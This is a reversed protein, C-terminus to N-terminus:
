NADWAVVTRRRVFFLVLQGQLWRYLSSLRLYFGKGASWLVGGAAVLAGGAALWDGLSPTKVLGSLPPPQLFLTRVFPIVARLIVELGVVVAGIGILFLFVLAVTFSAVTLTVVWREDAPSLYDRPTREGQLIDGWLRAQDMFRKSLTRAQDLTFEGELWLPRAKQWAKLGQEIAEFAFRPLSGRVRRLGGLTEPLKYLTKRWSEAWRELNHRQPVPLAWFLDALDGSFSFVEQLKISRAGLSLRALQAWDQLLQYFTEPDPLPGKREVFRQIEGPLARLRADVSKGRGGEELNELGLERSLVILRQALLWALANNSTLARRRSYSLRPLNRGKWSRRAAPNSPHIGLRYRGVLEAASWGLAWTLILQRTPVPTENAPSPGEPPARNSM